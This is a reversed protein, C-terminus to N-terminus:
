TINGDDVFSLVRLDPFIKFVRGWLHLTVHYFVMFEPPDGQLGGTKCKVYNTDGDYSYYPIRPYSQIGMMITTAYGPILVRFVGETPSVHSEMPAPRLRKKLRSKLPKTYRFNVLFIVHLGLSDDNQGFRRCVMLTRLFKVGLPCLLFGGCHIEVLPRDPPFDM